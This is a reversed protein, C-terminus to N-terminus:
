RVYLRAGIKPGEWRKSRDEIQLESPNLRGRVDCCVADNVMECLRSIM